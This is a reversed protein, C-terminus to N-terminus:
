NSSDSAKQQMELSLSAFVFAKWRKDGTLVNRVESPVWEKSVIMYHALM